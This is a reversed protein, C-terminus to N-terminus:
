FVELCLYVILFYIGAYVLHKFQKLHPAYTTIPLLNNMSSIIVIYGIFTILLALLIKKLAISDIYQSGQFGEINKGNRNNQVERIKKKLDDEEEDSDDNDSGSDNYTKKNTNTNNINKFSSQKKTASPVVPLQSFSPKTPTNMLTTAYTRVPEEQSQRLLLKDSNTMLPTSKTREPADPLQGSLPKDPNQKMLPNKKFTPEPFIMTPSELVPRPEVDRDADAMKSNYKSQFKTTVPSYKTTTTNNRTTTTPSYQTTTTSSQQTKPSYSTPGSRPSPGSGSEFDPYQGKSNNSNNSNNNKLESINKKAKTYNLAQKFNSLLMEEDATISEFGEVYKSTNGVVM